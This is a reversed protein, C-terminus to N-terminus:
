ATAEAPDSMGAKEFAQRRLICSDCAGCPKPGAEYCSWTHKMPAKLDRGTEVVKAKTWGLLPAIVKIPDGEVGGRTGLKVLDNFADFYEPRCDPYGSYDMTHAGIFVAQAEISEALAIGFALFVTNRAPVYTVPVGKGIEARSRNKPVDMKPDTLASAGLDGLPINLIRHEKVRLAQVVRKAAELEALNRQGYDFTLAHVDYRECKAITAAVSSDLGGSVLAVARRPKPM